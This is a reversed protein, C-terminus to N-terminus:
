VFDVYVPASEIWGKCSRKGSSSTKNKYKWVVDGHGKAVVTNNPNAAITQQVWADYAPFFSATPRDGDSCGRVGNWRPCKGAIDAAIRFPEAASKADSLDEHAEAVVDSGDTEVEAADWEEDTMDFDDGAM